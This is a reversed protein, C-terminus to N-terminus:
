LQEFFNDNLSSAKQMIKKQLSELTDRYEINGILNETDHPDNKTDILHVPHITGDVSEVAYCFRGDYIARWNGLSLYAENDNEENRNTVVEAISNGSLIHESNVHCLEMITPLFDVTSFVTQKRVGIPLSTNKGGWFILPVKYANQYPVAKCRPTFDNAGLMDGHDSTYIVITDQDLQRIELADLVKAIEDDMATIMAYYEQYIYKAVKKYKESVNDDLVIDERDYMDLYKQPVIQTLLSQPFCRYHELDDMEKLFDDDLGLDHKRNLERSFAKTYPLEYLDPITAQHPESYNIQMFWPRESSGAKDIFSIALDTRVSASFEGFYKDDLMGNEDYYRTDYHHDGGTGLWTGYGFRNEVPQWGDRSEDPDLGFHSKGVFCTQYGGEELIEGMGRPPNSLRDGNGMVGHQHPYLGTQINVRYPACVPSNSICNDFIIGEKALKEITPAIIQHNGYCPLSRARHQDSVILLINPRKNEQM